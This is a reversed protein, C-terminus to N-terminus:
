EVKVISYKLGKENLLNNIKKVVIERSDSLNKIGRFLIYIDQSNYSILDEQRVIKKIENILKEDFSSHMKIEVLLHDKDRKIKELELVIDFLETSLLNGNKEYFASQEGNNVIPPSFPFEKAHGFIDKYENFLSNAKELENNETYFKILRLWSDERQSYYFAKQFYYHADIPNNMKQHINGMEILMDVYIRKLYERKERVWEEHVNEQLLEGKYLSVAKSFLFLRRNIEKEKFGEDSLALFEEFDIYIDKSKSFTCFDEQLTLEDSSLGLNKRIYYLTTNLNQRASEDDFGPWFLDYLDFVSVKQGRNLILYKLIERAKRSKLNEIPNDDLFIQFDGLMYINLM